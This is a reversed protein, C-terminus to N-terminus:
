SSDIMQECVDPMMAEDAAAAQLAALSDSIELVKDIVGLVTYLNIAESYHRVAWAYSRTAMADCAAAEYQGAAALKLENAKDPAELAAYLQAADCNGIAARLNHRQDMEDRAAAEYQEAAAQCLLLIKESQGNIGFLVLTAKCFLGAAEMHLGHAVQEAAHAEYQGAEAIKMSEACSLDGAYMFSAVAMSYLAAAVEFQGLMAHCKAGAAYQEAMGLYMASLQEKSPVHEHALWIEVYCVVAMKRMSAEEAYYGKEVQNVVESASYAPEDGDPVVLSRRIHRLYKKKQKGAQLYADAAKMFYRLADGFYHQGHLTEGQAKYCEAAKAYAHAAEGHEREEALHFAASLELGGQAAAESVEKSSLAGYVIVVSALLWALLLAGKM